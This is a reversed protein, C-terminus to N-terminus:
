IRRAKVFFEKYSEAVSKSAESYDRVEEKQNVVSPKILFGEYKSALAGEKLLAKGNSDSACIHTITKVGAEDEVFTSISVRVEYEDKEDMDKCKYVSIGDVNSVEKGNVSARLTAEETDIEVLIKAM